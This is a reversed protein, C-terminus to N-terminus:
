HMWFGWLVWALFLGGAWGAFLTVVWGPRRLAPNRAMALTGTGSSGILAVCVLVGISGMALVSTMTEGIDMRHSDVLYWFVALALALVLYAAWIIWAAWRLREVTM